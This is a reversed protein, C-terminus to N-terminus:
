MAPVTGPIIVKETGGLYKAQLLQVIDLIVLGIACVVFMSAWQDLTIPVLSFIAALPPIYVICLHLTFASGVAIILLKNNIPNTRFVSKGETTRTVFVIVCEFIVSVTLALTRATELDTEVYQLFFIMTAIFSIIGAVLAFVLIEKMMGGKRGRPKRTMNEPDGPDISLALAPLGDTLLNIWLIHIALYPAPIGLIIVATFVCLIEDFNSSLLYRIFKKMNGYITRGEEIASVITAFNDDMLVMDSAEKSVDTGTIGMAVGIDAKKLAPADNVGDGTMAVVLGYDEQLSKVIRRKIAPSARACVDLDEIVERFKDDSMRELEAATYTTYVTDEYPKLDLAKAIAMATEVQDGTIMIVRIGAKKCKTVAERVETRPPDIMAALGIFTMEREITEESYTSFEGVLTRRAMALVRYAKSALETNRKQIEERTADDLPKVESDIMVHTCVNLVSEPSGKMFARTEDVEQNHYIMTMRKRESDFFIEGDPIFRYEDELKSYLYGLKMGAVVLAGETPDGECIWINKKYDFNISATSCLSGTVLLRYVDTHDEVIMRKEEVKGGKGTIQQVFYGRPNYGTGTIHIFGKAPTWLYEVAMKNMTLTGTKDTCIVEVSGLTEVAPLTRIVAKKRAMRTVGIALTLTIAAALGEPVASVALAISTEVVDVIVENTLTGRYTILETALVFFCIIIVFVGLIKGLQSLQHQLPTTQEEAEMTFKAIEGMQTDMGTKVVIAKGRGKVTTTGMFAMNTRESLPASQDALEATGKDVPVSEGTLIGEEIRLRHAEFIRSDAAIREGEYLLLIDGPVLDRTSIRTEKGDRIVLTDDGTLEKLKELSQEARYEQIFGLVANLIVIVVIILCDIWEQFVASILAAGLLLFVLFDNFQLLFMKLPSVKKAEALVNHGHEELRKQVEKATLGTELSIDLEAAIEEVKMSHFAKM